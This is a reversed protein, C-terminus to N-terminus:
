KVGKRLRVSPGDGNAAVFIMGASELFARISSINHASLRRIGKEFSAVSTVGLGSHDALKSQSLGLMARAEKVQASTITVEQEVKRPGTDSQVFFEAYRGGRYKKLWGVASTEVWDLARAETEFKNLRVFEGHPLTVRVYWGSEAATLQVAEFKVTRM